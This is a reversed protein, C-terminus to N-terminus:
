AQGGGGAAAVAAGGLYHEFMTNHRCQEAEAVFTVVGKHLVYVYDAVGLVRDVFQEVLLLSRGQAKLNELVAFIEDLVVPALGMSLEDALVTQAPSVLARTLALMQQQGGSLRGAELNLFRGLVPFADVVVGVPDAPGGTETFMDINERVTLTRFIGGGGPILCLGRRARDHPAAGDLAVGDIEVTGSQVPLLGAIVRLLTTKGAGNAGLLAVAAASPVVLDVDRLVETRGYGARIGTVQLM